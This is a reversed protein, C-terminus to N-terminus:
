ALFNKSDVRQRELVFERIKGEMEFVRRPLDNGLIIRDIKKHCNM